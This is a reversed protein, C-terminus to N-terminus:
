RATEHGPPLHWGDVNRRGSPLPIAEAPPPEVREPVTRVRGAYKEFLDDIHCGAMSDRIMQWRYDEVALRYQMPVDPVATWGRVGIVEEEADEITLGRKAYAEKTYYWEPDIVEGFRDYCDLVIKALFVMLHRCASCVDITPVTPFDPCPSFYYRWAGGPGSSGSRLPSVGVHQGLNRAEHFFRAIEDGKLRAQHEAYWANFGEASSMVAQLSSTVSRAAAVFASFYCGAPFFDGNTECLRELFFDAEALKYDVLDFSRNGM